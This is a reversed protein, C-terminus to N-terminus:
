KKNRLIYLFLKLKLEECLVDLFVFIDLDDEVRYFFVM